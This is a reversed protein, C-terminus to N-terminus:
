RKDHHARDREHAAGPMRDERSRCNRMLTNLMGGVLLADELDYIEELLHPATKTPTWKGRRRQPCPVVREM